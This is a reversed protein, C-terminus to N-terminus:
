LSIMFVIISLLILAKPRTAMSLAFTILPSIISSLPFATENEM